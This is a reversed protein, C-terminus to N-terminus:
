AYFQLVVQFRGPPPCHDIFTIIDFSQIGSNQSVALNQMIGAMFVSERVRHGVAAFAFPTEASVVNFVSLARIAARCIQGFGTRKVQHELRRDARNIIRFIQSIQTRFGCLCNKGLKFVHNIGGRALQREANSLDAFREAIFDCRAVKDEADPLKFLGLQFIKNHGAFVFFPMFHPFFGPDFPPFLLSQRALVNINIGRRFFIQSVIGFGAIVNFILERVTHFFQFAYGVAGIIVEAVM